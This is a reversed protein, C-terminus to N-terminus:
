PEIRYLIELKLDAISYPLMIGEDTSVATVRIEDAICDKRLKDLATEALRVLREIEDVTEHHAYIRMDMTIIGIKHSSSIHTRTERLMHVYFSPFDNIEHLYRIGRFGQAQLASAVKTIISNLIDTRVTM